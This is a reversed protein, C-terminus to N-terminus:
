FCAPIAPNNISQSFLIDWKTVIVGSQIRNNTVVDYERIMGNFRIHGVKGDLTYNQGFAYLLDDLVGNMKSRIANKANKEDGLNHVKSKIIYRISQSYAWQGLQQDMLVLGYNEDQEITHNVMKYNDNTHLSLVEDYVQVTGTISNFIYTDTDEGDILKLVSIIATEIQDLRNM